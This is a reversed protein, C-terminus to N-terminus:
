TPIWETVEQLHTVYLCRTIEIHYFVCSDSSVLEHLYNHKELLKTKAEQIQHKGEMKKAMGNLTVASIKSMEGHTQDRSDVLMAVQGCNELLHYKRTYKLTAFIINKVDDSVHFAVLSGYAAEDGRTCLVALDQSLLLTKIKLCADLDNRKIELLHENHVDFSKKDM